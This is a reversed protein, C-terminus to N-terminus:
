NLHNEVLTGHNKLVNLFEVFNGKVLSTPSENHSRFPFEQKAVYCVADIFRHLIVRNKKVQENNKPIDNRREASRLLDFCV